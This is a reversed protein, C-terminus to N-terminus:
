VGCQLRADGACFSNGTDIVRDIDNHVITAATEPPHYQRYASQRVPFLHNSIAHESVPIVALRLSNKVRESEFDTFFYKIVLPDLSSKKIRRRVLARKHSETFSLSVM